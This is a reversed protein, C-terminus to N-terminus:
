SAIFDPVRIVRADARAREYVLRGVAIDLVGLGFPSVITPRGPDLRLQGAIAQGITGAIFDSSGSLEAALHPSTRATLCHGVDDVVNNSALLIEPALDRLSVHLVVQGPRLRTGPPVYPAAATTAFVVLDQGLAADLDATRCDAANLEGALWRSFAAARPQTVDHCIVDSLGLGAQQLYTAIARAIVGAGVFGASARQLWAAPEEGGEACVATCAIAASAATRAASIGAAELCAYPRGTEYDNLILVASARPLGSSLNRPFSGIWKIGATESDGGVYAPLAIVRSDPKAPFRLFCSAPNVADGAHHLRYTTEVTKMVEQKAESLV